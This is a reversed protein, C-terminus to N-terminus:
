VQFERELGTMGTGAVKEALQMLRMRLNQVEIETDGFTVAELLAYHIFSYQSPRQVMFNRQARIRSVYSYVDLLNEEKIQEMMADIVIFTGTRGVGASCHVTIPGSQPGEWSNRVRKWFELLGTAYEPVDHDPWSTFYFHKVMRTEMQNSLKRLSFKRIEFDALEEKEELTVIIKGYQENEEPWYKHCKVQ